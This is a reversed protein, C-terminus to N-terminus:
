VIAWIRFWIQNWCFPEYIENLQDFIKGAEIQKKENIIQM